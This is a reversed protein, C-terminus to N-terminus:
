RILEMDKLLYGQIFFGYNKTAELTYVWVGKSFPVPQPFVVPGNSGYSAVVVPQARVNAPFNNYNAGAADDSDMVQVRGTSANNTTIEVQTMFFIQGQPLDFVQADTDGAGMTLNVQLTLPEGHQEIIDMINGSVPPSVIKSDFVTTIAM